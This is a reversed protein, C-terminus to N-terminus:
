EITTFLVDPYQDCIDMIALACSSLCSSFVVSVNDMEILKTAVSVSQDPSGTDDECILEIQYNKGNMAIGGNENLEAVALELGQQCAIGSEASAGSLPLVAGMRIIGEETESNQASALETEASSSDDGGSTAVSGACGACMTFVTIVALLFAAIKRKM